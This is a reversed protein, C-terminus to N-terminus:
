DAEAFEEGDVGVAHRHVRALPELTDNAGFDEGCTQNFLTSSRRGLARRFGDCLLVAIDVTNVPDSPHCSRASSDDGVVRRDM